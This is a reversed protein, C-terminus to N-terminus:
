VLHQTRTTIQQTKALCWWSPTQGFLKSKTCSNIWIKWIRRKKGLSHYSYTYLHCQIKWDLISAKESGECQSYPPWFSNQSRRATGTSCVLMSWMKHSGKRPYTAVSMLLPRGGQRIPERPYRQSLEKELHENRLSIPWTSRNIWCARPAQRPAWPGLLWASVCTYGLM